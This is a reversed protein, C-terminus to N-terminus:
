YKELIKQAERKLKEKLNNPSLINVHGHNALLFNLLGKFDHNVQCQLDYTNPESGPVLYTLTQPFEETLSNYAFVDLTLNVVVQNNNAIRFVDTIQIVHHNDFQWAQDTVSVREIRSLRYHRNANTAVDFAQLTDIDANLHFPEVLRNRIDNSRSRYNELVVQKKGNRAATLKEIKELAPRRLARLGLQQFDYLSDLKKKLYLADKNSVYKLVGDIRAKDADTLPQLFKLERFEQNPLVAYRNQRDSDIELEAERISLFDESVTDISVNFEQALQRKTFQFPYRLMKLLIRIVRERPKM